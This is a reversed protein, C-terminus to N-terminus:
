DARLAVVPDVRTARRAPLLCAALSVLAMVAIVAAFTLPDGPTMDVLLQQLVVGLALAGALGIPVGIALQVLGRELVLWWVHRRGAGVAMRVGIEQTRQAVSYSMIAYLAVSSLALAIVALVAFLSGFVRHPWRDAALLQEVTQITFVPQDADIAQVERRVAEMVSAPPLASRVVVSAVRPAEQRYPIYVVANLYADQPSGHRIPASIGVITRWVDPPRDPAPERERFRLRRGIPDEGPFFQAALRENIIVTEFGPTGDAERFIRGRVLPRDVVEFFRPGITVTSVFRPREESTRARAEIEVLREGGDFPPVGTTVAFSEVGAIAFLRPELRDFFARRAEPTPYAPEPLQVEMTTLRDVNIGIDISYLNMFSRILLGAGTLLVITLAIEAAVMTSSFWRVRRSGTSGRGGEKLVDHNNTKSVHLAPALGFLIATLVCIAAVYGLVAHDVTFVMWYPKQSDQMAGEFMGVGIVAVILGGGGGLIGLVVSELLLQRVVRWRTAGLAMRVAIERARYVSRALLMNAVNACAIILVFGVAAMITLFMSRARGGVLRETIPEVRVGVLDKNADPYAAALRQAVANLEAQAESRSADDRLRGVVSLLRADRREETETPILPAWVDAGEPFKMGEPMVGIITAPQGNVRLLTGLVGSDAGYRNKWFSYSIIVVPEAGKRDDDRAFDRGLLPRQGLLGFTNATLWTGPAHEPLARDDSISMTAERFAALGTFTRSQERWDALEAHSVNARRGSQAQWSLAYLRESDDFPLGRFFAANVISFGIANVGIGLALTVVAVASFWRDKAVLRFAFRLDQLMTEIVPLGRVERHRQRLSGRSGVRILAARRAQEPTMGRGVNDETLMITHSELEQELDRDLDDPAVFARIRAIMRTLTAFM